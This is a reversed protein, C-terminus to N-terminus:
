IIKNLEDMFSSYKEYSNVSTNYIPKRAQATSMTKIPTKNEYFKLCQSEWELGCFDIIEKSIQEQNELIKEYKVDYILDPYLKKWYKMLDLYLNYYTGLEKQSYTFNLGGEFFNKYLSLCNDKANRTCHIIKSNPFLIKIFGIWRFNLPAKDTIFEEKYDFRKLLDNYESRMKNAQEDNNIFDNFKNSSLKMDELINKEIIKSIFTLEGAGFVHSHSSVIQEVLTTGSRPMGLIFIIKKKNNIEQSVNKLGINNFEKKISDFLKIEDQINFNILDRIIKNAIEFNKFSEEINGVDENAKALGYYLNSKQNVNLELNKSKEKMMKFHDNNKTYKTSQSILLDAQTFKPELILVKKACEIAKEFNGMGQYALALSYQVIPNKENIESAKNYFKIASKFDNIDRKLNGYNVYANIYDPKKDIIKTYLDEALELQELNKYANALNNMVAINEPDMKNAKDFIEKALGFRGTNLYASGLINYLILYEPNQRIIKKGKSIVLDYNSLKFLNMLTKVENEINTNKM